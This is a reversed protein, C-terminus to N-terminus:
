QPLALPKAPNDIQEHCTACLLVSDDIGASSDPAVEYLALSEINRCLECKSDSRLLLAKEAKMM